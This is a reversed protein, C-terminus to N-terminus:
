WGGGSGLNIPEVISGYPSVTSGSIFGGYLARGTSAGPGQSSVYGKGDVNIIGGSDITFDGTVTLRLKYLEGLLTTSNPVHSILGGSNLSLNGNVTITSTGGILAGGSGITLNGVTNFPLTLPILTYSSIITNDPVILSAGSLATIYSTSSGFLTFNSMSGLNLSEGTDVAINGKNRVIINSFQSLSVSGIMPTYTGFVTTYNNNDIILTGQGSAQGGTQLYVTGASGSINSSSAGYASITGSYNTFSSGGGSLVVSVRGGSGAYSSTPGTAGNATINASGSVSGTTIYISGGSSGCATVGSATGNASIVGGVTTLGSVNLIIAGGGLSAGYNACGGSGINIPEIISGYPSVGSGSLMGGYLGSGPPNAYGPGNQSTYGKGDVSIQGGSNITLNGSVSLNIKYREGLATTSNADHSVYGGSNATMNGVISILGSTQSVLAGTGSVTLNTNLTTTAGINLTYNSISYSAPLETTAGSLITVYSTSSSVGTVLDVDLTDGTDVALNGKNRVIINSFQSFDVSGNNVTYAISALNNNDIILTGAGSSQNGTQQYVTGAAGKVSSGSGGYATMTGSYGSFTQGSENLVVSVRGGGGDSYSSSSNGGHARITGGGSVSGTTIYVSGGSGTAQNPNPADGVGNASIIGGITSVGTVNVIVIGGGATGWGGSGSNVPATISGYTVGSVGVGGGGVGGYSGGSLGSIHRGPGNQAAYGKWDASIQGGSNVTLDGNVTLNIKYLDGLATTSNASHTITGGSNISLNGQVVFPQSGLQLTGSGINFNGTTTAALTLLNLTLNNLTHNAPVALSAGSYLTIFSTSSSTVTYNSISGLDLSEGSDLGLNGKNRIIINSFLSLDVSGNILTSVTVTSSTQNNNDIILTGRGAGQAQTEQYVTGAAGIFNSTGGAYATMTGSYGSFTQGSGTLVVSVRGGGASSYAGSGNGGNARIVGAGSISGTILYVSGGTGSGQSDIGLTSITGGITTSGAVSLTIAGGGATNGGSGLNTPATTSGYTVGSSQTGGGGIGGYSSGNNAVTRAGPGQGAAYGKGDANIFAGSAVTLNGGINMILKYREGLATTSNAAHTLTGSNITVNGAVTTTSNIASVTVTQTYGPGITISNVSLNLTDLTVNTNGTADFVLDDSPGPVGSPSWNGAVSSLGGAAGRWYKNAAFTNEVVAFFFLASCILSISILKAKSFNM